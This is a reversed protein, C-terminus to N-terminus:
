DIGGQTVGPRQTPSSQPYVTPSEDLMVDFLQLTAANRGPFQLGLRANTAAKRVARECEEVAKRLEAVDAMLEVAMETWNRPAM